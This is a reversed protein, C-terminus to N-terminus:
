PRMTAAPATEAASSAAAATAAASTATAAPAGVDSQLVVDNKQPIQVVTKAEITEAVVTAILWIYADHCLLNRLDHRFCHRLVVMTIQPDVILRETQLKLVVSVPDRRACM